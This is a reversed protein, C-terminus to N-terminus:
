SGLHTTPTRPMRWQLTDLTIIIPHSTSQHHRREKISPLNTLHSPQHSTNQSRSRKKALHPHQHSTNRPHSQVNVMWVLHIQKLPLRSWYVADLTISMRHSTSQYLSRERVKPLHSTNRSHSRKKTLHPREHSTNRPHSQINVMWIPHIKNSLFRSLYMADLTISMHLSTSRLLNRERVRLLHNTNLSHSRGM